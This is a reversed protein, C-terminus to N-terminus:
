EYVNEVGKEDLIEELRDLGLEMLYLEIGECAIPFYSDEFCDMEVSTLSDLNLYGNKTMNSLYALSLSPVFSHDIEIMEIKEKCEEVLEEPIELACFSMNDCSYDLYDELHDLMEEPIEMRFLVISSEDSRQIAAAIQGCEFALRAAERENEKDYAFYVCHKDSCNWTPISSSDESRLWGSAQIKRANELTTGHYIHM